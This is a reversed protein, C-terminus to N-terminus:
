HWTWLSLRPRGRRQYTSLRRVEVGLHPDVVRQANLCGFGLVDMLVSNGTLVRM